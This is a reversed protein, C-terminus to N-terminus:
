ENLTENYWSRPNDNVKSFDSATITSVDDKSTSQDHTTTVMLAIRLSHLVKSFKTYQKKPELLIESLRQITFPPESQFIDLLAHIEKRSQDENTNGRIFIETDDRPSSFEATVDEERDVSTKGVLTATEDEDESVGDARYQDLCADILIHYLPKMDVWPYRLRNHLAVEVALAKLAPDIIPDESESRYKELLLRAHELSPIDGAYGSTSM